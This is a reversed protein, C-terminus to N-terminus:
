PKRESFASKASTTSFDAAAAGGAMALMSMAVRGANNFQLVEKSAGAFGIVGSRQYFGLTTLSSFSLSPATKSGDAALLPGTMTGGALPVYTTGVLTLLQAGTAKEGGSGPTQVVYFLDSASLAGAASLDSLRTDAM